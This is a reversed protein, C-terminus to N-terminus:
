HSTSVNKYFLVMRYAVIVIVLAASSLMAASLSWVAGTQYFRRFAIFLYGAFVLLSVLLVFSDGYLRWSRQDFLWQFPVVLVFTEALMILLLFAVFYTAFILHEIFTRSTKVFLLTFVLAYVPILLVLYAKSSGTMAANFVPTYDRLTQHRSALVHGVAENTGYSTYPTYNLFSDLPQNFVNTTSLLFFVLNVVLFFGLPKMYRVRRGAAYEAPLEGPRFLVTRVTRILTHDAHTFGEVAEEAVHKLSLGHPDYHKEGCSPCFNEQNPNGCTQCTM